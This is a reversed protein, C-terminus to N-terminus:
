RLSDPEGAGAVFLQRRAGEAHRHFVVTLGAPALLEPDRHGTPQGLDPRLADDAAPVDLEMFLGHTGPSVNEPSRKRRGWRLLLFSLTPATGPLLKIVPFVPALTGATLGLDSLLFVM